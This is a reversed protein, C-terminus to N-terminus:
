RKKKVYLYQTEMTEVMRRRLGDLQLRPAMLTKQGEEIEKKGYCESIKISFDIDEVIKKSVELDINRDTQRTIDRSVIRGAAILGAAFQSTVEQILSPYRSTNLQWIDGKKVLEIQPSLVWSLKPPQRAMTSLLDLSSISESTPLNARENDKTPSMISHEKRKKDNDQM